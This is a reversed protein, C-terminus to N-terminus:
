WFLMRDLQVMSNPRILGCM